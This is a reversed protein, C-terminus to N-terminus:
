KKLTQKLNVLDTYHKKEQNIVEDILERREVKMYEKFSSYVLISEKEISIGFNVAELDDKFDQKLKEEILQPSFIYEAAIARIYNDYEGSNLEYVIYDGAKNLIDSFIKKHEVEQRKLYDWVKKVEKNDTQESLKDYLKAGAEEVKISIKLIEQPDFQNEM